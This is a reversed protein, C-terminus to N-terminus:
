TINNERYRGDPCNPVPQVVVVAWRDEPSVLPLEVYDEKPQVCTARKQKMREKNRAKSLPMM